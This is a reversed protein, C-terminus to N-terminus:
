GARVDRMVRAEAMKVDVYFAVAAATTFGADEPYVTLLLIGSPWGVFVIGEM